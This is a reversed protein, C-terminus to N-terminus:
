QNYSTIENRKKIQSYTVTLIASSSSKLSQEISEDHDRNYRARFNESVFITEEEGPRLVPATAGGQKFSRTVVKLVLDPGEEKVSKIECEIRTENIGPEFQDSANGSSSRSPSCASMALLGAFLFFLPQNM